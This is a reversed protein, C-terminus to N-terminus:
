GDDAAQLRLCRVVPLAPFGAQAQGKARESLHRKMKDIHRGNNDLFLGDPQTKHPAGVVIGEVLPLTDPNVLDHPLDCRRKGGCLSGSVAGLGSVLLSTM